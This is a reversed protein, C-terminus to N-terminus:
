GGVRNRRYHPPAGSVVIAGWEKGAHLGEELMRYELRQATSYVIHRNLVRLRSVAGAELSDTRIFPSIVLRELYVESVGKWGVVFVM